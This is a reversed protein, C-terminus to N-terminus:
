PLGIAAREYKEEVIWGADIITVLDSLNIAKGKRLPSNKVVLHSYIKAYSERAVHGLTNRAVHSAIEDPTKTPVLWKTKRYDWILEGVNVQSSDKGLRKILEDRLQNFDVDYVDLSPGDVADAEDVLTRIGDDREAEDRSAPSIRQHQKLIDEIISELEASKSNLTTGRGSSSASSIKYMPKGTRAIETAAETNTEWRKTKSSGSDSFLEELVEDSAFVEDSIARIKSFLASVRRFFGGTSSGSTESNTNPTRPIKGAPM